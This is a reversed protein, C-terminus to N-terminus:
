HGKGGMSGKKGMGGMSGKDDMLMKDSKKAKRISEVAFAQMGSQNLIKGQVVVQKGAFKKADKKISDHGVGMLLYAQDGVLIGAPLGKSICQQACKEHSKGTADEPHQMYCVLDIVEGVLSISDGHDAHSKTVMQKSKVKAKKHDKGHGHAFSNLGLGFVLLVMVWKFSHVNKM